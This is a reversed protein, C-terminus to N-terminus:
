GNSSDESNAEKFDKYAKGAEEPTDYVGLRYKKGDLIIEAAWKNRKKYVGIFGSTNNKNLGRNKCNNIQDTNKLNTLRNNARDRDIHDIINPWVGYTYFWALRHALYPKTGLRISIYGTDELSGALDGKVVAIRNELWYFNGSEPCYKLVKKLIEITLEEPINTLCPDGGTLVEKLKNFSYEKCKISIRDRSYFKFGVPRFRTSELLEISNDEYNYKLIDIIEQAYM